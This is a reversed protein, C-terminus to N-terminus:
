NREAVLRKFLNLKSRVSLDLNEQPLEIRLGGVLSEDIHEIVQIHKAHPFHESLLEKIDKIVKPELVHASVAVAEIYGKDFRYQMVDRMLSDLDIDLREETLFNALAKSLTNRDHISITQRGIIEALEYRTTGQIM